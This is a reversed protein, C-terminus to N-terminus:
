EDPRILGKSNYVKGAAPASLFKILAKAATAATALALAATAFIMGRSRM